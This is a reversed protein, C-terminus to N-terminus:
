VASISVWCKKSNIERSLHLNDIHKRLEVFSSNDQHQLLNETCFVTSAVVASIFTNDYYHLFSPLFFLEECLSEENWLTSEYNYLAHWNYESQRMNEKESGFDEIISSQNGYQM